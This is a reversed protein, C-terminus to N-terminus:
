RDNNDRDEFAKDKPVFRQEIKKKFENEKQFNEKKKKTSKNKFERFFEDDELKEYESIWYDADKM